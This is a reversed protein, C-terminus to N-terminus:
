QEVWGRSLYDAMMLTLLIILWVFGASAFLWTLRSSYRLHMFYILVLVAKTVAIALAVVVDLGRLDFQAVFVTLFMLLLLAAYVVFYTRVPVSHAPEPHDAQEAPHQADSM